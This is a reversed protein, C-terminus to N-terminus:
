DNQNQGRHAGRHGRRHIQDLQADFDREFDRGKPGGHLKELFLMCALNLVDRPRKSAVYISKRTEQYFGYEEQAVLGVEELGDRGTAVRRVLQDAEFRKEMEVQLKTRQHIRSPDREPTTEAGGLSFNRRSEASGTSGGLSDRPGGSARYGDKKM